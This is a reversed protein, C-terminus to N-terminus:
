IIKQYFNELKNMEEKAKDNTVHTYIDLTIAVSSHGLYKQVAKAEIGAEFCRTAFTHRLAHPYIHEMPVFDTKDEQAQKERDKNVAKVIWNLASQFAHEAIPRGKRGVFVLKEFGELPEWAAAALQMERKQIRQRKLARYVSEQMPIVRKGSETKPTQYKFVYKGTTLDKIYVLTKNIRIEKKQFDLDEDTLGLLEGARMGTGLAVIILNEHLRGRAHKLVERQEQLSLVRIPKKKTRPLEVGDCPNYTILRNHVAYKFVASLINCIDRITKTSYDNDAMDQFLRELLIPKFDALKKKGLKKRVYNKYCYDYRSLTSEKVSKKKHTNLWVDFWENLTLYDGKGKIGHKVEYKLDEMQEMLLKLNPNDLTYQENRFKFRARYTGNPRQMIGTPLQKGQLDKGM